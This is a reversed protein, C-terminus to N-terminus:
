LPPGVAIALPGLFPISKLFGGSEGVVLSLEILFDLKLTVEHRTVVSIM